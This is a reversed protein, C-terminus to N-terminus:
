LKAIVHFIVMPLYVIKILSECVVVVVCWVGCVVCWVGSCVVCWWVGCVMCWACVKSFEQEELIPDVPTGEELYKRVLPHDRVGECARLDKPGPKAGHQMMCVILDYKRDVLAQSCGVNLFTILTPHEGKSKIHNLIVHLIDACDGPLFHVIMVVQDDTVKLGFSFMREYSPADRVRNVIEIIKLKSTNFPRPLKQPWDFLIYRLHRDSVNDRRLLSYLVEDAFGSRVESPLLHPIVDLSVDPPGRPYLHDYMHVHLM